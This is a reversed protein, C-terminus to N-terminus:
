TRTRGDGARVHALCMGMEYYGGVANSEFRFRLQRRQAKLHIMETDEGFSVPESEVDEARANSRGTVTVTMDGIQNFDPEIAAVTLSRNAPPNLIPLNVPISIDGTEFYSQIPQIDSGDIRDLGTEHAWLNFPRAFTLTFTAGSGAGGTVSAPNTPTVTYQGANTVAVTAISGGGGVTAVTLEVPISATGGVVSLVNGVAYGTGAASVAAASCIYDLPAVGSAIPRSITPSFTAASRGGGPLPTDYWVNERVNFVIAHNPETAEGKPFCWWIEGFRPVKFAFVKQAQDRNLNDYFFDVNYNNPVERVVGNFALMRDTGLWYYIGDYEIVSRPSLISSQATLTDFQFVPTGGVYTARVLSDLSWLLGAPSNGGGARLPLGRVIKQGTVYANGAGSVTFDTPDPSWMVFGASGFVMAYPALYVVGGTASYAAPYTVQTLAGTGTISGYFVQGGTNNAIDTLNPAAQAVIQLGTGVKQAVDFQWINDVSATLAAPTRDTIISTNLTGDLTLRELRAASGAHMYILNNLAYDHLARPIAQIYRNVSRYGGMKRPLGRQFRAWLADIYSENGLQTGDRVVGSQSRLPIITESM